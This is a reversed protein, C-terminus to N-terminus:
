PQYEMEPDKGSSILFSLATECSVVAGLGKGDNIDEEVTEPRYDILMCTDYYPIRSTSLELSLWKMPSLNNVELIYCAIAKCGEIALEM